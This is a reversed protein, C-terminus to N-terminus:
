QRTGEIKMRYRDVDDTVRIYPLACALERRAADYDGIEYLAVAHYYRLDEEGRAFAGVRRFAEAADRFAGTRYLGVAAEAVVERPVDSRVAIQRYIANADELLGNTGFAEAQRLNMLQGRLTDSAANGAPVTVVPPPPPAPRVTPLPMAPDEPVLHVNAPLNASPVLAKVLSEFEAADAQLPLDAYVPSTQEMAVLRLITARADAERGARSQAIALYVLATASTERQETAADAAAGLDAIASAYDAARFARLGLELRTEPPTQAFAGAAFAIVAFLATLSRRVRDGQNDASALPGNSRDM